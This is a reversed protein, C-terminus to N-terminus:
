FAFINSVFVSHICALYENLEIFSDFPHYLQNLSLELSQSHIPM